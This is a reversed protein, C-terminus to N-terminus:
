YVVAAEQPLKEKGVNQEYEITWILIFTNCLFINPKKQKTKEMPLLFTISQKFQFKIVFLHSM